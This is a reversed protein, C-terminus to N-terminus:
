KKVIKLAIENLRALQEPDNAGLVTNSSRAKYACVNKGKNLLLELTDTLYYEHGANEATLEGLVSLLDETNFWYCGSNVENVLKQEENTDKQEVIAAVNGNSDRIIRGYGSPDDVGASIVTASSDNDAHFEYAGSIAESDMFPADGNLVVVDGPNKCLFDRCMMVARGTGLREAQFATDIKIGTRETYESIFEDIFARGFGTLVCISGIGSEVVSDIVWELMPKDLVKSLAKPKDSKMRKGEGGALIVASKGM